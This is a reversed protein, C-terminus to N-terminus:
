LLLGSRKASLQCIETKECKLAKTKSQYIYFFYIFLVATFQCKISWAVICKVCAHLM